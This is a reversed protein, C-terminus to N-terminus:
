MAYPGRWDDLDECGTVEVTLPRPQSPAALWEDLAASWLKIPLNRVLRRDTQRHRSM